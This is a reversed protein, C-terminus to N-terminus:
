LEDKAGGDVLPKAERESAPMSQQNDMFGELDMWEAAFATVLKAWDEVTDTHLHEGDDAMKHWVAPFPYAILHLIDVGKALFPEHDDGIYGGLWRDSDTKGAENLWTPEEQAERSDGLKSPHNPSSKFQGLTRLKTELAAMRQYAWHTTKFYSPMTPNESGLLDLLVFLDISDLPTRYTSAVPNMTQEWDSALSRFSILHNRGKKFSADEYRAGYLSDSSSWSKFAEEGDLLLVQVGQHEEVGDFGGEGFGEAEMVTWKATLAEDISKVAHMLMACPAASDTAGIFGKLTSLSDYHAVLALRGM